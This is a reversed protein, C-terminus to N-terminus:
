FKISERESLTLLGVLRDMNGRSERDKINLKDLAIKGPGYKDLELRLAKKKTLLFELSNPHSAGM